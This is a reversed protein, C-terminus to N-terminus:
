ERSMLLRFSLPSEAPTASEITFKVGEIDAFQQENYDHALIVAQMSVDVGAAKARFVTQMSTRKLKDAWVTRINERVPESDGFDGSEDYLTIKKM